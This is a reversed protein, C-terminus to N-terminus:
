KKLEKYIKYIIIPDVVLIIFWGLVFEFWENSSMYYPLIFLIQLAFLLVIGLIKFYTKM